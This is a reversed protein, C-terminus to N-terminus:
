WHGAGALDARRTKRANAAMMVSGNRAPDVAQSRCPLAASFADSAWEGGAGDGGADADGAAVAVVVAVAVAVGATM